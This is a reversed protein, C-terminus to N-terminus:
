KVKKRHFRNRIMALLFVRRKRAKTAGYPQGPTIAIMYFISFAIPLIVMYLM